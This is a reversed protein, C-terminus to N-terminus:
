RRHQATRPSRSATARRTRRGLQQPPPTTSPELLPGIHNPPHHLRELLPQLSPHSHPASTATLHQLTRRAPPSAALLSFKRHDATLRHRTAYLWAGAGASVFTVDSLDIVIDGPMSDIQDDIILTAGITATDLEGHLEVLLGGSVFTFAVKLKSDPALLTPPTTPETARVDGSEITVTV